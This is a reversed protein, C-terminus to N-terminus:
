FWWNKVTIDMTQWTINRARYELRRNEDLPCVGDTELAINAVQTRMSTMNRDYTLGKKRLFFHANTVNSKIAIRMCVGKAGAPVIGSLDREHWGDDTIFDTLTFDKEAPDGRDVFGATLYGQAEIFDALAKTRTKCNTVTEYHKAEVWSQLAYGAQDVKELIIDILWQM